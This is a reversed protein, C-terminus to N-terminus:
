RIVQRVLAVTGKHSNGAGHAFRMLTAPGVGIEKALAVLGKQEIATRTRARLQRVDDTAKKTSMASQELVM